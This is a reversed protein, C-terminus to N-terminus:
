AAMADRLQFELYDKEFQDRAERLPMDYAMSM